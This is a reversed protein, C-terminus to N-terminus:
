DKSATGNQTTEIAICGRESIKEKATNWQNKIGTYKKKDWVSCKKLIKALKSQTTKLFIDKM